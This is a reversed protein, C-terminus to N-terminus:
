EQETGKKKGSMFERGGKCGERIILSHTMNMNNYLPHLMSLLHQYSDDQIKRKVLFLFSDDEDKHMEKIRIPGGDM